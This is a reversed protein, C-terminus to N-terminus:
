ERKKIQRDYICSIPLVLVTKRANQRWERNCMTLICCDPMGSREADDLDGDAMAAEVLLATITTVFAEDECPVSTGGDSFGKVWESFQNLM